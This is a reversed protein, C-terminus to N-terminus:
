VGKIKTSEHTRFSQMCELFHQFRDRFSLAAFIADCGTMNTVNVVYGNKLNMRMNACLNLFSIPNDAGYKIIIAM